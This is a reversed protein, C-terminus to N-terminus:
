EKKLIVKENDFDIQVSKVVVEGGDDTRYVITFSDCQFGTANRLQKSTM